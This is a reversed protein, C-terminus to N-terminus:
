RSEVLAKLKALDVESQRVISRRMFPLILNLLIPKAHGTWRVEVQTGGNTAHLHTEVEAEIADGSVRSLFRRNPDVELLHDEMEYRRRNQNYHLRAKSGVHGPLESVIELRELDTTWEVALSPDLLVKAVEEPPRDIAIASRVTIEM